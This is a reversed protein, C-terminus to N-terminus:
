FKHATESTEIQINDPQKIKSKKKTKNQFYAVLRSGFLFFKLKFKFKFKIRFVHAFLYFLIEFNLIKNKTNEKQQLHVNTFGM